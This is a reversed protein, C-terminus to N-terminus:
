IMAYLGLQNYNKKQFTKGLIENKIVGSSNKLFPPPLLENM